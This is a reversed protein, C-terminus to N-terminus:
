RPTPTIRRHGLGSDLLDCLASAHGHARDAIHEVTRLRHGRLGALAHEVGDFLEAVDAVVGRTVQAGTAAPRHGDHHQIHGVREEGVDHAAGLLDDLLGASHEDDAVAALVRGALPVVQIQQLLLPDPPQEDGRRVGAVLLLQLPEDLAADGHDQDVAAGALGVAARHRDVVHEAAPERGLMQGIASMARIVKTPPGNVMGCTASRCAPAAAASVSAPPM